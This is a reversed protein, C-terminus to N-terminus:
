ARDEPDFMRRYEGKLENAFELTDEYLKKLDTDPLNAGFVSKLFKIEAQTIERHDM